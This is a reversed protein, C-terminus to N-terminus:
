GYYDGLLIKLNRGIPVAQAAMSYRAWVVIKRM